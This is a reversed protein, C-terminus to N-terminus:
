ERVVKVILLSLNKPGSFAGDEIVGKNVAKEMGEWLTVPIRRARIAPICNWRQRGKVRKLLSYNSKFSNMKPIKGGCNPYQILVPQKRQIISIFNQLM